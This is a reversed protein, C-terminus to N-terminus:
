NSFINIIEQLLQQQKEYPLDDWLDFADLVRVLAKVQAQLHRESRKWSDTVRGSVRDKFLESYDFAVVGKSRMVPLEDKSDVFVVEPPSYSSDSTIKQIRKDVNDELESLRLEAEDSRLKDRIEKAVSKQRSALQRFASHVWRSLYVFHPHSYNFSERDINLAADIGKTVFIEVSVQNKRTQESVPYGMFTQDFLVGSSDNIRVLVGTHEKPVLTHNWLLYAEFELDGGRTEEPIKSLDPKASGYFILTYPSSTSTKPLNRFILPRKLEIDDIIVTFDQVGGREPSHLNLIDRIKRSDGTTIEEANGRIENSIKFYRMGKADSLNFSHDEIYDIPAALSLDWVMQLYNDLNLKLTPNSSVSGM